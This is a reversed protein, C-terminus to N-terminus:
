RKKRINKEIDNMEQLLRKRRKEPVPFKVGYSNPLLSINTFLTAYTLHFSISDILHILNSFRNQRRHTSNITGPITVLLSMSPLTSYPSHSAVMSARIFTFSYVNIYFYSPFMMPCFILIRPVRFLVFILFFTITSKEVLNNIVLLSHERVNFRRYFSVFESMEDKTKQAVKLSPNYPASISLISISAALSCYCSFCTNTYIDCYVSLFSGNVM